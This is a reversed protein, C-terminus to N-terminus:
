QPLVRAHRAPRGARARPGALDHQVRRAHRDRPDPPRRRGPRAGPPVQRAPRLRRDVAAGGRRLRPPPGPPAGRGPPAAGRPRAGALVEDDPAVLESLFADVAEPTSETMPGM